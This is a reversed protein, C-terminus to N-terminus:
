GREWATGLEMRQKKKQLICVHLPLAQSILDHTAAPVRTFCAYSTTAQTNQTAVQSLVENMPTNNPSHLVLITVM